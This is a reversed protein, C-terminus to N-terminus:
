DLSKKSLLHAKAKALRVLHELYQYGEWEQEEEPTLGDTRNKELLASIRAQLAESPRLALIEEPTPLGALIELVSATGAFNHQTKANLERLGFELIQPIQGELPGLRIALEDPLALTMLM